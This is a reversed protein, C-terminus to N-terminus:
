ALTASASVAHRERTARSSGTVAATILAIAFIAITWQVVASATLVRWEHKALFAIM